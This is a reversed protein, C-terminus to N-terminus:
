ETLGSLSTFQLIVSRVSSGLFGTLEKAVRMFLERATFAYRMGVYVIRWGDIAVGNRVEDVMEETDRM